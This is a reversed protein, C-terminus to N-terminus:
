LGRVATCESNIHFREDAAARIEAVQAVMVGHGNTGRRLNWHFIYLVSIQMKHQIWQREPIALFDFAFTTQEIYGRTRRLKRYFVAGVKDSEGVFTQDFSDLQSQAVQHGVFEFRGQHLVVFSPEDEYTWNDSLEFLKFFGRRRHRIIEGVDDIADVYRRLLFTQFIKSKSRHLCSWFVGPGAGRRRILGRVEIAHQRFPIM